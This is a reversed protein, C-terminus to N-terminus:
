ESARISQARANESRLAHAALALLREPSTNVPLLLLGACGAAVDLPDHRRLSSLFTSRTSM